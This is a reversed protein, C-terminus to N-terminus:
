KRQKSNERCFNQRDVKTRLKEIINIAPVTVMQPLIEGNSATDM